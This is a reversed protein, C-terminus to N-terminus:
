AHDLLSNENEVEKPDHLVDYKRRSKPIYPLKLVVALVAILVGVLRCIECHFVTNKCAKCTCQEDKSMETSSTRTREVVHFSMNQLQTSSALMYRCINLKTM